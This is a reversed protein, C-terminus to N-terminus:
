LTARTASSSTACFICGGIDPVIDRRDSSAVQDRLSETIISLSTQVRGTDDTARMWRVVAGESCTSGRHNEPAHRKETGRCASLRWSSPQLSPRFCPTTARFLERFCGLHGDVRMGDWASRFRTSLRQVNMEGTDGRRRGQECGGQTPGFRRAHGSTQVIDAFNRGLDLGVQMALSRTPVVGRSSRPGRLCSIRLDEPAHDRGDNGTIM